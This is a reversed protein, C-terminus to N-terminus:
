VKLSHQLSLCGLGDLFILILHLCFSFKGNSDHPFVNTLVPRLTLPPTTTYDRKFFSLAKAGMPTGFLFVAGGFCLLALFFWVVPNKWMSSQSKSSKRPPMESNSARSNFSFQDTRNRQTM